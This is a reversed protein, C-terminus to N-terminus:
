RTAWAAVEHELENALAQAAAAVAASVDAGPAFSAGEIGYVMVSLPLRELARAFEVAEALGIRHTSLGFLGSPLPRESVDFRHLTGAPAGSRAADVLWLASAGDCCEILEIPEGEHEVVELAPLARRRLTQAVLLGAADDGGM